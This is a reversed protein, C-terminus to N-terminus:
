YYKAELALEVAFNSSCHDDGAVEVVVVVVAATTGRTSTSTGSCSSRSSNVM